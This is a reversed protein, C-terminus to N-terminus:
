AATADDPAEQEAVLGNATLWGHLQERTSDTAQQRLKSDKMLAMTQMAMQAGVVALQMQWLGGGSGTFKEVQARVKPNANAGANLAGVLATKNAALVAAYATTYPIGAVALWVGTLAGDLAESYDKPTLPESAPKPTEVRARDDKPPRGRRKPAAKKAELEAKDAESMRPPAPVDAVPASMARAFDQETAELNVPTGDTTVLGEPM